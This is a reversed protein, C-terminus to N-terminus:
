LRYPSLAWLVHDIVKFCLWLRKWCQRGSAWHLLICAGSLMSPIITSFAWCHRWKKQIRLLTLRGCFSLVPGSHLADQGAVDHDTIAAGNSSLVLGQLSHHFSFPVGGCSGKWGRLVDVELSTLPFGAIQDSGECRLSERNWGRGDLFLCWSMLDLVVM